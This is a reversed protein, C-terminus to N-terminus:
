LWWESEKVDYWREPEGGMAVLLDRMPPAHMPCLDVRKRFPQGRPNIGQYEKGIDISQVTLWGIALDPLENREKKCVDCTVVTTNTKM